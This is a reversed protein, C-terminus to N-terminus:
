DANSRLRKSHGGVASQQESSNTSILIHSGKLDQNRAEIIAEGKSGPVVEIHAKGNAMELVCSRQPTGYGTLLTGPGNLSFYIRKNYDLCQRGNKDVALAIVLVNGNPLQAKSLRFDDAPGHQEHTYSVVLSDVTMHIGDEYGIATLQNRGEVFAVQWFLGSAPFQALDKKRKGQSVGNLILEVEQCNGFVKVDRKVNPPGSRETWTHSEIYCFKPNETWYSKYVYYADKPNGALDCLGKQNVYPIPNEPRLPTGFDKFIWQANGTLSDSQESVKLHWDFLDVIYSESWDGLTAVPTMKQKGAASALMGDGGIRQETHRGIHSDGGYEAHFFRKFKRRADTIAKEYNQYGFSSSYWGMWISSSHVDVLDAGEDFRRTATVRSPDLKHAITNLDSLMARLSDHNDGRPFDPLWDLENGLSWIIISPHNVNQTIMEHLLRKTNAKWEDGGMGGRCWPLEDWVLLGLEDCARYVERAQPYHGLRVFTAGMEKIMKMEHRHLSDPLANGLGSWEEHRHTGRLLLREGNLYFPGHEKFEFWRYGFRESHSDMTKGSALLRVVATYLTPHNPSWLSPKNIDSLGLTVGSKGSHLNVRQVVKAVENGKADLIIAEIEGQVIRGATNQIEVVLSTSAREKRVAPTNVRLSSIYCQPLVKLWVNRTIGGYLFFDSKQSPIVNQDISNDAKVLLVNKGRKVFPTIDVEFGVYGGVHGGARKGNVFVDAKMNVGEFDLILTKGEVTAPISVEKKYWGIGRRYGPVIDMVDDRNWTHPLNVPTWAVRAKQLDNVNVIEEELYLWKDNILASTRVVEARSGAILNSHVLVACLVFVHLITAMLIKM